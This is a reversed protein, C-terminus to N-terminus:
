KKHSYSTIEGERHVATYLTPEINPVTTNLEDEIVIRIPSSPSVAFARDFFFNRIRVYPYTNTRVTTANRATCHSHLQVYYLLPLVTKIESIGRAFFHTTPMTAKFVLLTSRYRLQMTKLLLTANKIVYNCTIIITNVYNFTTENKFYRLQRNCQNQSVNRKDTKIMQRLYSEETANM